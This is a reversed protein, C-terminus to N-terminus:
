VGLVKELLISHQDEWTALGGIGSGVMVGIREADANEGIHAPIKVAKLSAVIAFQVFRDMRRAEKKGVYAEPNFDKIEAAIQTPYESVDFSEIQSVGSKGEMLNGWFLIWNEGLSTMVGMGTVVVRNKM